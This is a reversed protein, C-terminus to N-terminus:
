SSILNHGKMTSLPFPFIGYTLILCPSVSYVYVGSYIDAKIRPFKFYDASFNRPGPDMTFFATM